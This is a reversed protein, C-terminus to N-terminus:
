SNGDATAMEGPGESTAVGRSLPRDRSSDTSWGRARETEGAERSV